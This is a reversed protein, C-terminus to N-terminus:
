FNISPSHKPSNSHQSLASLDFLHIQKPPLPPIYTCVYTYLTLAIEEYEQPSM